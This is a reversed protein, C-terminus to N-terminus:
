RIAEGTGKYVRRRLWGSEQVSHVYLAYGVSLMAVINSHCRKPDQPEEAGCVAQNIYLVADRQQHKVMLAATNGEIHWGTTYGPDSAWPEKLDTRQSAPGRRSAILMSANWPTGDRHYLQGRARVDDDSQPKKPWGVRRIAAVHPASPPDPRWRAHPGPPTTPRPSDTATEQETATVSATGYVALLQRRYEEVARYAADVAATAEPGVAAIESVAAKVSASGVEVALAYADGSKTVAATAATHAQDLQEVAADVHGLVNDRRPEQPVRDLASVAALVATRATMWCSTTENLADTIQQLGEGPAALGMGHSWRVMDDAASRATETAVVAQECREATVVVTTRASELATSM